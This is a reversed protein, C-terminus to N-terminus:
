DAVRIPERSESTSARSHPRDTLKALGRAILPAAFLM